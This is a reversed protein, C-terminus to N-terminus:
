NPELHGESKIFLSRFIFESTFKPGKLLKNKCFAGNYISSLTIRRQLQYYKEILHTFWIWYHERFGYRSYVSGNQIARVLKLFMIDILM